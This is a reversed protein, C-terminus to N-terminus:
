YLCLVTLLTQVDINFISFIGIWLNKDDSPYRKSFCLTRSGQRSGLGQGPASKLKGWSKLQM